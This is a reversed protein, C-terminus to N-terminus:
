RLLDIERLGRRIADLNGGDPWGVVTDVVAGHDLFFFTPTDFRKVMPLEAEAYIIGLRMNPYSRNWARLADFDTLDASPAVWQAYDRFIDRLLPDAELARAASVSFHCGASGLIVVQSPAHINFRFRILERKNASAIWLSAQGKRVRYASRMEPTTGRDLVPHSALLARAEDTQGARLLADYLEGAHPRDVAHRRDLEAFDRRADSLYVSQATRGYILITARFLLEMDRTDLARWQTDSQRPAFDEEYSRILSHNPVNDNAQSAAILADYPGELVSARQDDEVSRPRTRADLSLAYSQMGLLQLLAYAQKRTLEYSVDETSFGGVGHEGYVIGALFRRQGGPSLAHLPSKDAPTDRVYADLQERTDITKAPIVMAPAPTIGAAPPDSARAALPFFFICAILLRVIANNPM